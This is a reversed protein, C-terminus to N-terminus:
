FKRKANGKNKRKDTQPLKSHKKKGNRCYWGMVIVSGGGSSPRHRTATHSARYTFLRCWSVSTSRVLVFSSTRLIQVVLVCVGRKLVFHQWWLRRFNVFESTNILWNIVNWSMSHDFNINCPIWQGLKRGDFGSHACGSKLHRIFDVNNSHWCSIQALAWWVITDWGPKIRYPTTVGRISLRASNGYSIRARATTGAPVATSRLFAVALVFHLFM